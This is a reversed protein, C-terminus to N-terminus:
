LWKKKRFFIYMVLTIAIMLSIAIFAGYSGMKFEPLAVNMGYYGTIVQLPLAFTAIITLVKVTYSLQASINGFSVELAHTTSDRCADLSSVIRNIHDNIDNFYPIVDEQILIDQILISPKRIINNIVVQQPLIVSKLSVIKRKLSFIKNIVERSPNEIAEEEASDSELVLRETFVMFSDIISDFIAHLIFPPGEKFFEGNKKVKNLVDTLAPIAREHVTVVFNKGIFINLEEVEGERLGYAVIFLYDDFEDLKPQNNPFICDEISLEHFKFVDELIDIDKEDPDEIDIWLAKADKLNGEIESPAIEKIEKEICAFGKTM